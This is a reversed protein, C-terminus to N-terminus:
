FAQDKLTGFSFAQDKAIHLHNPSDVM